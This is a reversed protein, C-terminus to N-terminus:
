KKSSILHAFGDMDGHYILYKSSRFYYSISLGLNISVGERELNYMTKFKGSEYIDNHM